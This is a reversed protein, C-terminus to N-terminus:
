IKSGCRPCFKENQTAEYGCTPCKKPQPAPQPAPVPQPVPQAEPATQPAPAPINQMGSIIGNEKLYQLYEPEFNPPAVTLTGPVVAIGINALVGVARNEVTKSIESLQTCIDKYSYSQLVASLEETLRGSIQDRIYSCIENQTIGDGCRIVTYLKYGDTIRGKFSLYAGVTTHYKLKRDYYPIRQATGSLLDLYQMNNNCILSWEYGFKKEHKPNIVKRDGSFSGEKHGNKLATVQVDSSAYVAIDYSQNDVDMKWVCYDKNPSIHLENRKKSFM